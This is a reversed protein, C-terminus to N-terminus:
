SGSRSPRVPNPCLEGRPFTECTATWDAMRKGLCRALLDDTLAGLETALTRQEEAKLATGGYDDGLELLAFRDQMIFAAGIWRERRGGYAVPSRFYVLYGFDTVRKRGDTVPRTGPYRTELVSSLCQNPPEVTELRVPVRATWTRRRWGHADPCGATLAPLAVCAALRLLSRILLNGHIMAVTTTSQV